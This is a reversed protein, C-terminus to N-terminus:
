SEIDKSVILKAAELDAPTDVDMLTRGPMPLLRCRATRLVDRLSHRGSAAASMLAARLAPEWIAIM